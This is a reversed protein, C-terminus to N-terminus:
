FKRNANVANGAKDAGRAAVDDIITEASVSVPSAM